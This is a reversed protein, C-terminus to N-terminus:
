NVQIEVRRNLQHDNSSTGYSLLQSEGKGIAKIRYNLRADQEILYAQVARARRQSLNMNYDDDGVSDTHGILTLQKDKLQGNTLAIALQQTQTKGKPTLTDSNFDFHIALDLKPKVKRGRVTMSRTATLACGITQSNLTHIQTQQYLKKRLQQHTNKSEKYTSLENLHKSAKCTEKAKLAMETSAILWNARDQDTKILANDNLADLMVEDAIDQEGLRQYVKALQIATTLHGCDDMADQLQSRRTDLDSSLLGTDISDCDRAHLNISLLIVIASTLLKM